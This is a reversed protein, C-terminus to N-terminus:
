RKFPIDVAYVDSGNLVLVGKLSETKAAATDKKLALQASASTSSLKQPASNEIVGRELPFFEAAEIKVGPRFNLLLSSPNRMVNSKWDAPLTKPLREKAADVLPKGSPDPSAKAAVRLPLQATGKQPVCIDKCALWQLNAKLTNTSGAKASAPVKVRTLLTAEDQYGYDVGAPNEMRSPAPWAIQGATWGPPLQWQVHAPEGSDGPNEWYIHWGPELQFHIGIWVSSGPAAASVDSVLKVQTNPGSQALCAGTNLLSACLFFSFNRLFRVPLM